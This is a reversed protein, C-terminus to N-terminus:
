IKDVYFNEAHLASDIAAAHDKIHEPVDKELHKSLKNVISDSDRVELERAMNVVQDIDSSNYPDSTEKMKDAIAHAEKSPSSGQDKTEKKAEKEKKIYNKM